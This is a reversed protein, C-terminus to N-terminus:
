GVPVGNNIPESKHTSSDVQSAVMQTILIYTAAYWHYHQPTVKSVKPCSFKEYICTALMKEVNEHLGFTVIQGTSNIQCIFLCISFWIVFLWRTKLLKRNRRDLSGESMHTAMERSAWWWRWRVHDNHCWRSTRRIRWRITSDSGRMRCSIKSFVELRCLKTQIFVFPEILAVTVRHLNSLVARWRDEFCQVIVLINFSLGIIRWM